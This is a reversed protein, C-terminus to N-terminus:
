KGLFTHVVSDLRRSFKAAGLACLHDQNYAEGDSYDHSGFNNADYFHFYPTSDQLAQLQAIVARATAQSPGYYGFANTNKYYPSEPTIYALFHIKKAALKFVLKKLLEFNQQYVANNGTTWTTDGGLPPNSGRWGNCDAHFLGLTDLNNFVPATPATVLEVFNGPLGNVWFRHNSDYNYGKGIGVGPNWTREMGPIGMWGVDIDWGICQVSACHNLIYDAIFTRTVPFDAGSIALNCVPTRQTFVAPNVSYLTHSSGTFIISMGTYNKWFSQMRIMFQEQTFNNSPTNYMGLSDLDLNDPNKAAADPYVWLCPQALETGEIIRTCGSTTLNVAYVAHARGAANRACAVALRGTNSWRPNDWSDEGAPCRYWATVSDAANAVFLYAHIGYSSCTISSIGPTYGFDLFLSAGNSGTDPSMSVNCVQASGGASKGNHPYAFLQQSTRNLLNYLILNKYGTAIYTGNADASRGGNFSGSSVLEQPTGAVSDGRMKVM